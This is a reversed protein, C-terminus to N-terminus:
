DGSIILALHCPTEDFSGLKTDSIHTSTQSSLLVTTMIASYNSIYVKPVGGMAGQFWGVIQHPTM